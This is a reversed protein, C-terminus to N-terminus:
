RGRRRQGDFAAHARANPGSAGGGRGLSRTLPGCPGHRTVRGQVGTPGDAVEALGVRESPTFLSTRPFPPFPPDYLVFRCFAFRVLSAADAMRTEWTGRSSPVTPTTHRDIVRTAGGHSAARARGGGPGAGRRRAATACPGVPRGPGAVRDAGKRLPRQHLDLGNGRDGLCVSPVADRMGGFVGDFAQPVEVPVSGGGGEGRVRPM